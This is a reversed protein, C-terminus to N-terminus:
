RRTAANNGVHSFDFFDILFLFRFPFDFDPSVM